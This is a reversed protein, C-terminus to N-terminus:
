RVISGAIRKESFFAEITEGSARALFANLMSGLLIGMPTTMSFFIVIKVVRGRKMQARVMNVGLAFAASGKHAIIAWFLV